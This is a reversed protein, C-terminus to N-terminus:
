AWTACMCPRRSGPSTLTRQLLIVRAFARLSCGDRASLPMDTKRGFCPIDFLTKRSSTGCTVFAAFIRSNKPVDKDTTVHKGQDQIRRSTLTVVRIHAHPPLMQMFYDYPARPNDDRKADGGELISYSTVSRLAVDETSGCRWCAGSCYESAM